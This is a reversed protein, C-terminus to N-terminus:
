AGNTRSIVTSGSKLMHTQRKSYVGSNFNLKILGKSKPNICGKYSVNM